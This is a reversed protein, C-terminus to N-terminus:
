GDNQGGKNLKEKIYEIQSDSLISLAEIAKKTSYNYYEKIANINIDNKNDRKDWDIYRKKKVITYFYFDYQMKASINHNSNIYNVYFINEPFYSLATNVVYKNYVANFEPDNGLYIKTYHISNIIDFITM